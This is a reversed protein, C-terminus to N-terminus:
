NTANVQLSLSENEGQAVMRASQKLYLMAFGVFLTPEVAAVGIGSAITLVWPLFPPPQENKLFAFALWFPLMVAVYGGITAKALLAALTLWKHETLEDSRFIAQGAKYNDLVVAPMALGFRSVVLLALGLTGYSLYLILSNIQIHLRSLTWLAGFVILSSAAGAVILLFFLLASLRLFADLRARVEALSRIISPVYGTAIQQVASCSAGFAVCSALWGVFYALLYTLWIDVIAAPHSLIERPDLFQRYVARVHYRSVILGITSIMVAPAALSFFLWFHAHYTRLFETVSQGVGESFFTHLTEELKVFPGRIQNSGASPLDQPILRRRTLEGELALRAEATLEDAAEALQLLEEDSKLQYARVFDHIQM